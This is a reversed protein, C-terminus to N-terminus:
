ETYCSPCTTAGIADCHGGEDLRHGVTLGARTADELTAGVQIANAAEIECNCVDCTEVNFLRIMGPQTGQTANSFDWNKALSRLAMVALPRTSGVIKTNNLMLCNYCTM